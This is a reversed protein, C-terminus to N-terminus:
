NKSKLKRNTNREATRRYAYEAGVVRPLRTQMISAKRSRKIVKRMAYKKGNGKQKIRKSSTGLKKTMPKVQHLSVAMRNKSPKTKYFKEYRAMPSNRTRQVQVARPALTRATQIGVANNGNNKEGMGDGGVVLVISLGFLIAAAVGAFLIIKGFHEILVEEKKVELPLRVDDRLRGPYKVQQYAEREPELSEFIDRDESM